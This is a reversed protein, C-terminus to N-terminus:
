PKNSKNLNYGLQNNIHALATGMRQGEYIRGAYFGRTWADRHWDPRELTELQKCLDALSVGADSGMRRWRVFEDAVFALVKRTDDDGSAQERWQPDCFSDICREAHEVAARQREWALLEGVVEQAMPGGHPEYPRPGDASRVGWGLLVSGDIATHVEGLGARRLAAALTHTTYNVVHPKQLFYALSVYPREVTPVEVFVMGGIRARQVMGALEGVPDAFHEIVQLAYVVDFCGIRTDAIRVGRQAAQAALAPDHEVAAVNIGARHMAAAVRGDGCGVELVSHKDHLGLADILRAAAREGHRDCALGYDADDPSVMRGTPQLAEDLEPRPLWPFERRYDGSAYYHSVEDATPHPVTQLLSCAICAATDLRCTRSQDHVGLADALPSGCLHCNDRLDM